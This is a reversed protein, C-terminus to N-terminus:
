ADYLQLPRWRAAALELLRARCQVVRAGAGGRGHGAALWSSGPSFISRLSPIFQLDDCSGAYNASSIGNRIPMPLHQVTLRLDIRSAVLRM